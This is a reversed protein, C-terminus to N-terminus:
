ELGCYTGSERQLQEECSCFDDIIETLSEWDNKAMLEYLEALRKAQRDNREQLQQNEEYMENLLDVIKKGTVRDKTYYWEEGIIDRFGYNIEGDDSSQTMFEIFRKETM